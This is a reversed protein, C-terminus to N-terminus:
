CPYGPPGGERPPSPSVPAPSPRRALPDLWTWECKAPNLHLGILPGKSSILDWCPPRRLPAIALCFYLPGLHDGQQVRVCVRHTSLPPPPRTVGPLGPPSVPFSLSVQSLFSERFVTLLM